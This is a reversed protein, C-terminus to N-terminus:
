TDQSRKLVSDGDSHTEAGVESRVAMPYWQALSRSVSIWCDPFVSGFRTVSLWGVSLAAGAMPYCQGLWRIVSFCGIFSGALPSLWGIPLVSRATSLFLFMSGALPYCQVGM